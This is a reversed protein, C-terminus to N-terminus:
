GKDARSQVIEDLKAELEAIQRSLRKIDDQSSLQYKKLYDEVTAFSPSKKESVGTQGKGVGDSSKKGSGETRKESADRMQQGTAVLKEILDAGEVESLEGTQVLVQVRNKIEEDVQMWLGLHSLIGRQLASLRDGGARVLEMLASHPLVGSQKKEQELIIQTLILATLDEGSANDTVVIEEGACILGALGDLTIYQKTTTNYLKRNPYRKIAVM